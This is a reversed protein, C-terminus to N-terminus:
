LSADMLHLCFIKLPPLDSILLATHSLPVAHNRMMKRSHMTENLPVLGLTDRFLTPINVPELSYWARATTSRHEFCPM